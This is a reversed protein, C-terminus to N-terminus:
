KTYANPFANGIDGCLQKLNATHSIVHLLQVSISKVTSSYVQIDMIDLLHGGSVLCCKRQLYQKVDFVMHLTTRQCGDGLTTHHGASFFKFCDLDLLARIEMEIADKWFRNANQEYLKVAHEPTRPVKTGYKFLPATSFKKRGKESGKQVKPSMRVESHGDLYIDYLCTIRRVARDFDRVVKKAWQLVRDGGRKSRSFKNGVIYQATMRLYDEHM